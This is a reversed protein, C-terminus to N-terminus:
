NQGREPNVFSLVHKLIRTQQEERTIEAKSDGLQFGYYGFQSHNAREILAYETSLPLKAKNKEVTEVNAVGDQSGYIKMIPIESTSLDIDRPHSTGLLILGHILGPNEHVFQAAMKGGLSHGILIYQKSPDDLMGTEKIKWYGKTALRWPMKCIITQHGDEAIKRCLPAYADPDVLAGPYFIIVKEYSQTPTFVLVDNPQTVKVSANSEFVTDNVGSASMSVSVWTFFSVGCAM